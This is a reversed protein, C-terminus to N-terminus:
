NFNKLFQGPTNGKEKKFANTFTTRNTFGAEKALAELTLENKKDGQSIEIFYEIRFKNLWTNFNSHYINNIVPSLQYVPIKTDRSLDHITYHQDKFPKNERMFTEIKEVMRKMNEDHTKVKTLDPLVHKHDPIILYQEETTPEEKDALVLQPLFGYLIRPSFLIFLTTTILVVALSQNLYFISFWSLHFIAGFIGPIILPLHLAVLTIIFWFLSRNVSKNSKIDIDKNRYILRILFFMIILSWLYRFVFHFGKIAIWGESVKFMKEPYDLNSKMIGIKYSESSFFFPLMDIVYFLAPILLIIDSEKWYRGPYFTNRTYLYLFSFILYATINGTRILFPYELILRTANLNNVFLSFWTNLLCFILYYNNVNQNRKQFSILIAMVLLGLILGTEVILESM